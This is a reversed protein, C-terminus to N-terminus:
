KIYLDFPLLHINIVKSDNSFQMELFYNIDEFEDEEECDREAIVSEGFHDKSECLM